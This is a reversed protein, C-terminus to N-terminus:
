ERVGGQTQSDKPHVRDGSSLSRKRSEAGMEAVCVSVCVCVSVGGQTQSDKPHARGVGEVSTRKGGESWKGRVM